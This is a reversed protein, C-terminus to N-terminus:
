FRYKIGKRALLDNLAKIEDSNLEDTLVQSLTGKLNPSPNGIGTSVERVGFAKILNVVDLDNKVNAFARYIAAEDSQYGNVATFIQNAISTLQLNTLTPKQGAKILDNVASNTADIESKAGQLNKSNKIKKHIAYIALGLAAIGAVVVAGQAWSPINIKENKM